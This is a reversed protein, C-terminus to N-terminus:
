QSFGVVVKGDASVGSAFSSFIGGPLDGLGQFSAASLELDLLLSAAAIRLAVSKLRKEIRKSSCKDFREDSGDSTKQGGMQRCALVVLGCGAPTLWDLVQSCGVGFSWRRVAVYVGIRGTADQT